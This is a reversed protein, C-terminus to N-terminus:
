QHDRDKPQFLGNQVPQGFTSVKRNSDMLSEVDKELEDVRSQLAAVTSTLSQLMGKVSELPDAPVEKLKVWQGLDVSKDGRIVNVVQQTSLEYGIQASVWKALLRCTAFKETCTAMLRMIAIADAHTLRKGM